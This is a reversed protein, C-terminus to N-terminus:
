SFISVKTRNYHFDKCSITHPMFRLGDRKKQDASQLEYIEHCTSDYIIIYKIKM